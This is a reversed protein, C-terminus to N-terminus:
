GLMIRRSNIAAMQLKKLEEASNVLPPLKGNIIADQIEQEEADLKQMLQNM